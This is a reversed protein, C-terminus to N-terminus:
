FLHVIIGQVIGIMFGLVGGLIEIHRLEKKAIDYVLSELKSLDFSNIKEEVMEGIKIENQAQEGINHIVEKIYDQGEEEMINDIYKLIKNRFGFLLPYDSIKSEIVKKVKDVLTEEM